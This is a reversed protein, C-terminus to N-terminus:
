SCNYFAEELITCFNDRKNILKNDYYDLSADNSNEETKQNISSYSTLSDKLGYYFSKTKDINENFINDSFTEIKKDYVLINAEVNNKDILDSDRIEEEILVNIMKESNKFMFSKNYAYKELIMKIKLTKENIKNIPLFYKLHYKKNNIILKGKNRNRKVFEIGLIILKDKNKNEIRPYINVKKSLNDDLINITDGKRKEIRYIMKYNEFEM